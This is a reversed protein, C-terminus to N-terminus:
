YVKELSVLGNIVAPSVYKGSNSGTATGGGSNNSNLLMVLKEADEMEEDEIVVVQNMTEGIEKATNRESLRAAAAEEKITIDDVQKEMYAGLKNTRSLTNNFSTSVALQKFKHLRKQLEQGKRHFEQNVKMIDRSTEALLRAIDLEVKDVENKIILSTQQQQRKGAGELRTSTATLSNTRSQRKRRKGTVAALRLMTGNSTDTSTSTRAKKRTSM